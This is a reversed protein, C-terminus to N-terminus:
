VLLACYNTQRRPLSFITASWRGSAARAEVPKQRWYFLRAVSEATVRREENERQLAGM